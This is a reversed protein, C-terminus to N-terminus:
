VLYNQTAVGLDQVTINFVNLLQTNGGNTLNAVQIGAANVPNNSLATFVGTASNYRNDYTQAVTWTDLYTAKGYVGGTNNGNSVSIGTLDNAGGGGTNSAAYEM